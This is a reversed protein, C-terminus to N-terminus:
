LGLEKELNKTSIHHIWTHYLITRSMTRVCRAYFRRLENHLMEKLCWAGAASPERMRLSM